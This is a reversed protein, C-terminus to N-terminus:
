AVVLSKHRNRYFADEIAVDDMSKLETLLEEDTVKQLWREYEAKYDM